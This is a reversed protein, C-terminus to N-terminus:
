QWARVCLRDGVLAWQDGETTREELGDGGGGRGEGDGEEEEEEPDPDDLHGTTWTKHAPPTEQRHVARSIDELSPLPIYSDGPNLGTHGGYELSWQHEGRGGIPQQYQKCQM